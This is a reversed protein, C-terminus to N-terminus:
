IFWIASELYFEIESSNHTPLEVNVEYFINLTNIFFAIDFPPDQKIVKVKLPPLVVKGDMSLLYGVVLAMDIRKNPDPELMM